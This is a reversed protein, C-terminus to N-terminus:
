PTLAHFFARMGILDFSDFRVSAHASLAQFHGVGPNVQSLAQGAAM